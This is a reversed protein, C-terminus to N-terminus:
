KQIEEIKRNIEGAWEHKPFLTLFKKFSILAQEYNGEMEYSVGIYYQAEPAEQSSGYNKVLRNFQERAAAYKKASFKINAVNFLAKRFYLSEVEYNVVKEYNVLADEPKRGWYQAEGLKFYVQPIIINLAMKDEDNEPEQKIIEVSVSKFIEEAQSYKKEILYKEGSQMKEQYSMFKFGMIFFLGLVIFLLTKRGM